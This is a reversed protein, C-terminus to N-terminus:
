FTIAEFFTAKEFSRVCYAEDISLRLKLQGDSMEASAGNDFCSWNLKNFVKCNKLTIQSKENKDFYDLLKLVFMIQTRTEDIIIRSLFIPESDRVCREDVIKNFYFRYIPQEEIALYKFVFSTAAAFVSIIIFLRLKASKVFSKSASPNM